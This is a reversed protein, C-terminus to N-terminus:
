AEVILAHQGIRPLAGGDEHSRRELSVPPRGNVILEVAYAWRDKAKFVTWVLGNTGPALSLPYVGSENFPLPQLNHALSYFVGEKHIRVAVRDGARVRTSPIGPGPEPVSGTMRALIEGAATSAEQRQLLLDELREIEDRRMPEAM